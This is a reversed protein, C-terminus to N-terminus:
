VVTFNYLVKFNGIGLFNMSKLLLTSPPQQKGTVEPHLGHWGFIGM